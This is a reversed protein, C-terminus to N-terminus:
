PQDVNVVLQLAAGIEEIGLGHGEMEIGHTRHISVCKLALADRGAHNEISGRWGMGM